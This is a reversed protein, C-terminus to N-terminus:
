HRHFVWRSEGQIAENSWFFRLSDCMGDVIEIATPCVNIGGLVDHIEEQSWVDYYIEAFPNNEMMCLGYQETAGEFPVTLSDAREKGEHDTVIILNFFYGDPNDLNIHSAVYDKKDDCTVDKHHVVVKGYDFNQGWQYRTENLLHHRLTDNEDVPENLRTFPERVPDETSINFDNEPVSEAVAGKIDQASNNTTAELDDSYEAMVSTSIITFIVLGNVSTKFRLSLTKLTPRIVQCRLLSMLAYLLCKIINM